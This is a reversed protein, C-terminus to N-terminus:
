YVQKATKKLMAIDIDLERENTNDDLDLLVVEIDLDRDAYVEQVLGDKVIIHVTKM